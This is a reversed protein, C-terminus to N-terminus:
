AEEHVFKGVAEYRATSWRRYALAVGCGVLFVIIVIFPTAFTFGTNPTGLLAQRNKVMLYIAFAISLAGLLPALFTKFWHFGDRNEPRLFYVIIAISCLTM